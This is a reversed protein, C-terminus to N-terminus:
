AKDRNKLWWEFFILTVAAIAFYFAIDKYIDDNSKEYYPNTISEEISFINSEEKPTRVFFLEEINKEFDTTQEAKYTGPENAIYSAPFETFEIKDDSSDPTTLYIKEGRTNFKIEDM